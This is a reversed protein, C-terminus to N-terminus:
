DSSAQLVGSEGGPRQVRNAIDDLIKNLPDTGQTVISRVAADGKPGILSAAQAAITERTAQIARELVAAMAAGGHVKRFFDLLAAEAARIAPEGVAALLNLMDLESVGREQMEASHLNTILRLFEIPHSYIKALQQPDFLDIGKEKLDLATGIPCVATWMRGATDKWTTM